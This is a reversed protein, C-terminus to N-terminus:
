KSNIINSVADSIVNRLILIDHKVGVSLIIDELIQVGTIITKEVLQSQSTKKLIKQQRM